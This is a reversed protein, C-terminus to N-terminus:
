LSQIGQLRNYTVFVTGTFKSSFGDACEKEFNEIKEDIAKKEKELATISDKDDKQQASWIKTEIKAKAQNMEVYDGIYYCPVVKKVDLECNPLSNSRFYNKIEEITADKPFNTAMITFDSPTTNGRDIEEATRNSIRRYIVISICGLLAFILNLIGSLPYQNTQDLSRNGLSLKIQSSTDCHFEVEPHWNLFNTCSEDNYNKVM